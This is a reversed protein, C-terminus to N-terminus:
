SLFVDRGVNVEFLGNDALETNRVRSSGDKVGLDYRLNPGLGITEDKQKVIWEMRLRITIGHVTEDRERNPGGNEQCDYIAQRQRYPYSTARGLNKKGDDMCQLTTVLDRNLAEKLAKVFGEGDVIGDGNKVLASISLHGRKAFTDDMKTGHYKYQMMDSILPGFLQWLDVGRDPMSISVLCVEWAGEFRFTTPLRVEFASNTNQPFEPSPDSLVVM